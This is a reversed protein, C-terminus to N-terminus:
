LNASLLLTRCILSVKLTNKSENLHLVNASMWLEVEHLYNLLSMFSRKNQKRLPLYVQTDDSFCHFSVGHRQFISGLLLMYLLFLIPGFM